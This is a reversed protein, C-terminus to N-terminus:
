DLLLSGLCCRVGRALCRSEVTGVGLGRALIRQTFFRDTKHNIGKISTEGSYVNNYTYAATPYIYFHRGLHVYYGGTVGASLERFTAEGNLPARSCVGSNQNLESDRRRVRPGSKMPGRFRYTARFVQVSTVRAKWQPLDFNADGEM